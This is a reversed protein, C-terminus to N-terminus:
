ANSKLFAILDNRETDKKLGAFVMITGQAAVSVCMFLLLLRVLM